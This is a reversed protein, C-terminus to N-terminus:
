LYKDVLAPTIISTAPVIAMHTGTYEARIEKPHKQLIQINDPSSSLENAYLRAEDFRTFCLLLKEKKTENSEPSVRVRRSIEVQEGNHMIIWFPQPKEEFKERAISDLLPTLLLGQLDTEQIFGTQVGEDWLPNGNTFMRANMLLKWCSPEDPPRTKLLEEAKAVEQAIMEPDWEDWNIRTDIKGSGFPHKDADSFIDLEPDQGSLACIATRYTRRCYQRCTAHRKSLLESRNNSRPYNVLVSPSTM